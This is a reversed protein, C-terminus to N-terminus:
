AQAQIKKSKWIFQPIWFALTVGVLKLIIVPLILWGSHNMWFSTNEFSMALLAGVIVCVATLVIKLILILLKM